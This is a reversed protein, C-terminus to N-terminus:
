GATDEVLLGHGGPVDVGDGAVPHGAELVVLPCKSALDVGGLSHGDVGDPIDQHAVGDVVVDAHDRGAGPLIEPHAHLRVAQVVHGSVAIRAVDTVSPRGLKGLEVSRGPQTDVREAVHDDDVIPVVDYPLDRGRM